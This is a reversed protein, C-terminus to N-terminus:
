GHLSKPRDSQRDNRQQVRRNFRPYYLSRGYLHIGHHSRHCNGKPYWSYIWFPLLLLLILLRRQKPRMTAMHYGVPLAFLLCIATTALSIGITRLTLVLYSPNLLSKLAEFSWGSEIGGFIDQPKFAYYIIISTPVVFFAILWTLSPLTILWQDIKKQLDSM